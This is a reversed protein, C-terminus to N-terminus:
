ISYIYDICMWVFLANVIFFLVNLYKKFTLKDM